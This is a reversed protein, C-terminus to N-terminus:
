LGRFFGSYSKNPINYYDTVAYAVSIYSKSQSRRRQTQQRETLRLSTDYVIDNEVEAGFIQDELKQIDYGQLTLIDKAPM